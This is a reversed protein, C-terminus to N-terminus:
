FRRRVRVLINAPLGWDTLAKAVYVGFLGFDIGTGFDAKYSSPWRQTTRWGRGIDLFAVGVLKSAMGIGPLPMGNWAKSGSNLPPNALDTRIELQGLVVRDCM